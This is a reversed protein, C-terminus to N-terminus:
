QLSNTCSRVYINTPTDSSFNNIFNYTETVKDAPVNNLVINNKTVNASSHTQTNYNQQQTIPMNDPIFRWTPENINGTVIGCRWGNQYVVFESNQYQITAVAQWNYILIPTCNIDCGITGFANSEPFYVYKGICAQMCQAVNLVSQAISFQANQYNEYGGWETLEIDETTQNSPESVIEIKITGKNEKFPSPPPTESQNIGNEIFFNNVKDSINQNENNM